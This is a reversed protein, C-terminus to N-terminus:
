YRELTVNSFVFRKILSPGILQDSFDRLQARVLRLEPDALDILNANRCTRIVEDSLRGKKTELLEKVKAEDNPDVLCHLNFHIAVSNQYEDLDPMRTPDDAALVTISFDGLEIEVWSVKEEIWPEFSTKSSDSSGCGFATALAALGGLLWLLKHLSLSLM